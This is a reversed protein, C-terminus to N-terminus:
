NLTEENGDSSEGSQSERAKRSRRGKRSKKGSSKSSEQSSTESESQDGIFVIEEQTLIVERGYFQMAEEHTKQNLLGNFSRFEEDKIKEKEGKQSCQVCNCRGTKRTERSKGRNPHKRLYGKERLRNQTAYRDMGKKM